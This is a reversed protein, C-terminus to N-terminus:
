SFFFFFFFIECRGVVELCYKHLSKMCLAPGEIDDCLEEVTDPTSVNALYFAAENKWNLPFYDPEAEPCQSPDFLYLSLEEDLRKIKRPLHYLTTGLDSM